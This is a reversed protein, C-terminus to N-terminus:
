RCLWAPWPMSPFLRSFLCIYVVIIGRFRGNAPVALSAWAHAFCEVM